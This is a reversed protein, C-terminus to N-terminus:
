NTLFPHELAKSASIRDHKNPNMLSDIFSIANTEIEKNNVFKSIKIIVLGKSFKSNNIYSNIMTYIGFIKNIDNNSGEKNSKSLTGCTDANQFLARKLFIEAFICGVSWIDVGTSYIKSGLLIEPARYWLTVVEHTYSKLPLGFSRALGFDAIKVNEENEDILLNSPKLDRHM